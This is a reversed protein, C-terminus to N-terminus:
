SPMAVANDMTKTGSAFLNRMHLSTYSADRAYSGFVLFLPHKTLNPLLLM